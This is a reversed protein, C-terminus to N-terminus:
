PHILFLRKIIPSHKKWSWSIKFHSFSTLKLPPPTKTKAGTTALM